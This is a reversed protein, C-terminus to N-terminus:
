YLPFNKTEVGVNSLGIHKIFGRELMENLAKATEEISILPNQKHIYYL